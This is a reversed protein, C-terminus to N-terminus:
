FDDSQLKLGRASSHITCSFRHECTGALHSLLHPPAPSDGAFGWRLEKGRGFCRGLLILKSFEQELPWPFSGLLERFWWHWNKAGRLRLLKLLLKAVTWSKKKTISRVTEMPTKGSKDTAKGLWSRHIHYCLYIALHLRRWSPALLLSHLSWWSIHSWPWVFKNGEQPSWPMQAPLACIPTELAVHAAGYAM